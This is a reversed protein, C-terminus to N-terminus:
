KGGRLMVTRETYGEACDFAGCAFAITVTAAKGGAFKGNEPYAVASWSHATGDCTGTEFIEFYGLVAFRGVSQKVNGMVDIFDGNTCTYTGTFTATGSRPDVKATRNITVEATPAPPAEIFAIHLNGGNGAGDQQDDIALVYYTTGAEAAFGVTGPGCAITELAGPAGVGVIVGASYDSQSVDVIVGGGAPSTFTYWVSADTAPAGCSGNLQTDDADTTAETTSLVESFGTVAATAGGATDNTPVAALAPPAGTALAAALTTAAVLPRVLQM